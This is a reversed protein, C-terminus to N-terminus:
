SLPAASGTRKFQVRQFLEGIITIIHDAYLTGGRAWGIGVHCYIGNSPDSGFATYVIEDSKDLYKDAKCTCALQTGVPNNEASTGRGRIIKYEAGLQGIAQALTTCATSTTNIWMVLYLSDTLIATGTTWDCFDFNLKLAFEWVRYTSYLENTIQDWYMPQPAGVAQLPDNCSNPMLVIESYSVAGPMTWVAVIPTKLIKTIKPAVFSAVERAISHQRMGQKVITYRSDNSKANFAKKRKSPAGKSGSRKRKISTVAQKTRPM